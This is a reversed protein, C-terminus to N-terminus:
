LDVRCQWIGKRGLGEDREERGQDLGQLAEDCLTSGQGDANLQSGNPSGQLAHAGRADDVGKGKDDRGQKAGDELDRGTSRNLSAMAEPASIQLHLCIQQGPVAVLEMSQSMGNDVSGQIRIRFEGSKKVKKVKERRASGM